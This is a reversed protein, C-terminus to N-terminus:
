GRSASVSKKTTSYPPSKEMLLLQEGNASYDQWDVHFSNASLAGKRLVSISDILVSSKESHEKADYEWKLSNFVLMPRNHLKYTDNIISEVEFGEERAEEAILM